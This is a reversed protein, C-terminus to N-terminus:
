AAGGEVCVLRPPNRHMPGDSSRTYTSVKELLGGPALMEDFIEDAVKRGEPTSFMQHHIHANVAAHLPRDNFQDCRHQASDEVCYVGMLYVMGSHEDDITPRDAVNCNMLEFRQELTTESDIQDGVQILVKGADRLVDRLATSHVRVDAIESDIKAIRDQNFPSAGSALIAKKRGLSRIQAYDQELKAHLRRVGLRMAFFVSRTCKPRETMLYNVIEQM